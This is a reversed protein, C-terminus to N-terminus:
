GEITRPPPPAIGGCVDTGRVGAAGEKPPEESRQVSLPGWPRLWSASSVLLSNFSRGFEPLFWTEDTLNPLTLFGTVLKMEQYIFPGCPFTPWHTESSNLAWGKSFSEKFSGAQRNSIVASGAPGMCVPGSGSEGGLQGSCRPPAPVFM